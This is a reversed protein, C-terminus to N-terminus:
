SAKNPVEYFDPDGLYEGRDAFVSKGIEALVHIYEPSNLLLEINQKNAKEKLIDFMQLWQAVAIGGSSPPAASFIEFERWKSKIPSRWKAKYKQLDDKSILGGHKQMFDNILQATEGEYFGKVGNKQIRKLTAALEAQKFIEGTKAHAFYDAFNLEIERKEIRAIYREISKALKEHVVFGSEAHYIAPALLTEWPLSGYKQHAEWMGAVTGPVGSALIGYISALRKVNGQEDLYMDRHAKGPATERYDIFTNENDNHIVMFGGGGINGAEPFTVALTFQAAIAADVANGGMNLIAMADRASYEDPMAVAQQTSPTQSFLGQTDQKAQNTCGSFLACTALLIILHTLKM